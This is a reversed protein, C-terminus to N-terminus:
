TKKNRPTICLQTYVFSVYLVIIIYHECVAPEDKVLPHRKIRNIYFYFIFCDSILLRYYYIKVYVRLVCIYYYTYHIYVNKIKKRIYRISLASPPQVKSFWRVGRWEGRERAKSNTQYYARKPCDCVYIHLRCEIQKGPNKQKARKKRISNDRRRPNSKQIESFNRKGTVRVKDSIYIVYIHICVVAWTYIGNWKSSVYSTHSFHVCGSSDFIFHIIYVRELTKRVGARRVGPLM